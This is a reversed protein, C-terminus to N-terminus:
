CDVCVENALYTLVGHLTQGANVNYSDSNSNYGDSWQYYETYMNWPASGM